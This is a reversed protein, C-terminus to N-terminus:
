NFYFNISATTTSHHTDRARRKAEDSHDTPSFIEERVYRTELVRKYTMNVEIRKQEAKLLDCVRQLNENAENAERLKERQQHNEQKLNDLEQKVEDLNQQHMKKTEDLEQKLM